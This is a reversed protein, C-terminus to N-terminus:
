SNHVKQKPWFPPFRDEFREHMRQLTNFPVNHLGRKCLEELSCGAIIRVIEVEYGFAQAVSLYPSIEILSINTNDVVVLPRGDELAGIFKRMCEGHAEGLKEPKFVYGDGKEFYHDASCVYAGVLKERIYTSKGSGPLGRTIIVKM